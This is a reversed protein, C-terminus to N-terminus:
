ESARLEIFNASHGIAGVIELLRVVPVGSGDQTPMSCAQIRDQFTKNDSGPVERPSIGYMM